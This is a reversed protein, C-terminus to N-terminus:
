IITGFCGKIGVRNLTPERTAFMMLCQNINNLMLKGLEKYTVPGFSGAVMCQNSLSLAVNSAVPKMIGLVYVPYRLLVKIIEILLAM